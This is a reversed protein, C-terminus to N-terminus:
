LNNVDLVRLITILEPLPAAPGSQIGEIFRNFFNANFCIKDKHVM